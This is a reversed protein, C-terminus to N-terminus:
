VPPDFNYEIEIERVDESTNRALCIVSHRRLSDIDSFIMECYGCKNM